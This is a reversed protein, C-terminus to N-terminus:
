IYFDGSFPPFIYFSTYSHSLIKACFRPYIRLRHEHYACIVFVACRVKHISCPASLVASICDHDAEACMFGCFINLSLAHEGYAEGGCFSGSGAIVYSCNGCVAVGVLHFFGAESGFLAFVYVSGYYLLKRKSEFALENLEVFVAYYDAFDDVYACVFAYEGVSLNIVFLEIGATTDRIWMGTKKKGDSTSTSPELKAKRVDKGRIYTVEVAGDAQEILRLLEGSSKVESGNIGTIIDNVRLGADYAPNKMGEATEIETFGVIVIGDSYFKVGFPMGGVYVESIDAGFVSLTLTMVVALYVVASAFIKRIKRQM